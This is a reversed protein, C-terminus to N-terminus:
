WPHAVQQYIIYGVRVSVSSLGRVEAFYESKLMENTRCNMANVATKEPIKLGFFLILGFLKLMCLSTFHVIYRPPTLM